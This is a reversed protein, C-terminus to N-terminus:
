PAEPAPTVEPEPETAKPKLVRFAAGIVDKSSLEPPPADADHFVVQLPRNLQLTAGAQMTDRTKDDIQITESTALVEVNGAKIQVTLSAGAALKGRSAGHNSSNAPFVFVETIGRPTKNVLTVTQMGAGGCAVLFVLLISRAM